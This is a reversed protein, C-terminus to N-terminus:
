SSYDDAALKERNRQLEAWVEDTSQAHGARRLRSRYKYALDHLGRRFNLQAVKEILAEQESPTLKTIEQALQEISQMEKGKRSLNQHPHASQKQLIDGSLCVPAAVFAM